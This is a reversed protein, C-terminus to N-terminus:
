VQKLIEDQNMGSYVVRLIVIECADDDSIYYAVYNKVLFRRVDNRKLYPNTIPRGAHPSHCIKDIHAELEDAFDAAAQLNMLNNVIYDLIGNIDDEAADTLTYGYIKSAM